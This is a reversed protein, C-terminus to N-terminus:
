FRQSLLLVLFLYKTDFCIFNTRASWRADVCLDRMYVSNLGYKKQRRSGRKHAGYSVGDGDVENSKLRNCASM